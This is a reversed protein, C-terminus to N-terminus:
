AIREVPPFPYRGEFLIPRPHYLRLILYFPAAPAPLWNSRPAGDPPRHSVWLSLAGDPDRVLRSRNGLAHRGLANATLYRDTGYLTVSWFVDAPLDGGDAFRIRYARRGDLPEGRDDYDALAYVAEDASLAALGRMATSARLMLDDGYRGLRTSFRWPQKSASRSHADILRMAQAYGAELGDRTDRRLAGLDGDHALPVRANAAYLDFLGREAPSPPFDHLARGLNAFFDLADGTNPELGGQWHAVSAPAAATVPGQVAIGAQFRCAAAIDDEDDVLVRGLMWVLDTPCPLPVTGAPARAADMGPGLLAFRGGQPGVHRLGINFFNNTYVDLLELVFYRGTQEPVTVVVPGSRLDLWANSYLLDCAPTVIDRDRDTWPRESRGLVNFPARGYGSADPATQVRCTRVCELLPYGAVVVPVTLDAVWQAQPTLPAEITM